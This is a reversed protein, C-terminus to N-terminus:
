MSHPTFAANRLNPTITFMTGQKFPLVASSTGRKLPSLLNESKGFDAEVKSTAASMHVYLYITGEGDIPISVPAFNTFSVDPGAREPIELINELPMEAEALEDKFLRIGSVQQVQEVDQQTKEAEIQILLQQVTEPKFDKLGSNPRANHNAFILPLKRGNGYFIPFILTKEDM